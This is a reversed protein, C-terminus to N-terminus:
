DCSAARVRISSGLSLALSRLRLVCEVVSTKESCRIIVDEAGKLFASM